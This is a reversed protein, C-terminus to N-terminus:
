GAMSGYGKFKAIFEIPRKEYMKAFVISFYDPRNYGVAFSVEAVTAYAGNELHKKAIEMRIYQMLAHPTMGMTQKIRRYFQRESMGLAMAIDAVVLKSNDAKETIFKEVELIWLRQYNPLLPTKLHSATPIMTHDQKIQFSQKRIGFIYRNELIPDDEPSTTEESILYRM